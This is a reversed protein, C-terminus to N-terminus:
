YEHYWFKLNKNNDIVYEASGTFGSQGPELKDDYGEVYCLMVHYEVGRDDLLKIYCTANEKNEAKVKVPVDYTCKYQWTDDDVSEITLPKSYIEKGDAEIVQFAENVSHNTTDSWKIIGTDSKNASKDTVDFDSFWIYGDKYYYQLSAVGHFWQYDNINVNNSPETTSEAVTDSAKATTDAPENPATQKSCGVFVTLVMAAVILLIISKDYKM